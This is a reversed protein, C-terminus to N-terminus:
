KEFSKKYLHMVKAKFCSVLSFIHITSFLLTETQQFNQLKKAPCNDTYFVKKEKLYFGIALSVM